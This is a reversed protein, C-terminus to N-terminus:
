VHQSLYEPAHVYLATAFTPVKIVFKGDEETMATYNRDNLAQVMIGALPQKSVADVCIGKVEMTPYTPVKAVVKKKVVVEDDDFDDDQACVTQPTFVLLCYGIVTIANAVRRTISLKKMTERKNNM